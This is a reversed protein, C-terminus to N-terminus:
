FTAITARSERALKRIQRRLEIMEASYKGHKWQGNREGSPAGSNPAGGHM